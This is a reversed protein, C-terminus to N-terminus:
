TEKSEVPMELYRNIGTQAREKTMPSEPFCGASRAGVLVHSGVGFLDQAYPMLQEVTFTPGKPKTAKEKPAKPAKPTEVEEVIVPEGDSSEVTSVTEDDPM